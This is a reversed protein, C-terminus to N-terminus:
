KSFRKKLEDVQAALAENKKRETELDQSAQALIGEMEKKMEMRGKHHASRELEEIYRLEVDEKEMQKKMKKNSAAKKLRRIVVRYKEPFDDERVNLIHNDSTRNSQDFVSLLQELENRRRQKLCSIQVIWCKHNLSEIFKSKAEVPRQTAVDIVTPSVQLVPTDCIELEKGLFYILYIQLPINAGTDEDEVSNNVDSYQKGMYGRFRMIDSPLSAKQLEILVLKDGDATKIKAKFDLRYVTYSIEKVKDEVKEATYEQPKPDLWTVDEGIISSVMLKAIANDEMLYKFVVDYTPNAILTAKGKDTPSATVSTAVSPKDSVTTKM